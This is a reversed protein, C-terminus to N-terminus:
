ASRDSRSFSRTACRRGRRNPRGGAARRCSRASGPGTRARSARRAEAAARSRRVGRPGGSRRRVHRGELKEARGARHGRRVRIVLGAPLRAGATVRGHPAALLHLARKAARVVVAIWPTAGLGTRRLPLGRGPGARRPALRRGRGAGSSLRVRSSPSVTRRLRKIAREPMAERRSASAMMSDPRTLTLPVTTVSIPTCTPGASLTVTSLRGTPGTPRVYIRIFLGVPAMVVVLSSRSRRVTISRSSRGGLSRSPRKGTPRRSRLM